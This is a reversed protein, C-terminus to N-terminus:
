GIVDQAVGTCFISCSNVHWKACLLLVKSRDDTHKDGQM